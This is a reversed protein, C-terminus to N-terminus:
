GADGGSVFKKEGRLYRSLWQLLAVADGFELFGEDKETDFLPKGNLSSDIVHGDFTAMPIYGENIKFHGKNIIANVVHGLFQIEPTRMSAMDNERMFIGVALIANNIVVRVYDMKERPHSRLHQSAERFDIPDTPTAEKAVINGGSGTKPPRPKRRLLLDSLLSAEIKGVDAAYLIAALSIPLVELQEEILHIAHMSASEGSMKTPM